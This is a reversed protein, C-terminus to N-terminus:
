GSRSFLFPAVLRVREVVGNGFHLRCEVATRGDASFIRIGCIACRYDYARVVTTRFAQSRVKEAPADRIIDLKRMQVESLISLQKASANSRPPPDAKALRVRTRLRLESPKVIRVYNRVIPVMFVM